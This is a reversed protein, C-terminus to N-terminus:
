GGFLQRYRAHQRAVAEALEAPSGSNEIVDDAVALRQARSAQASLIQRIMDRSLGSRQAVREIQLAEPCDIILVRDVLRRFAPQEALLPIEVVGYLAPQRGAQQAVIENAILPHLIGELRRRALSDAFVQERLRYRLLSGSPDFLHDGFATRIAPLAAGEDATLQRAIADTDILPVGHGSFLRAASSKGSGIGGSLGM